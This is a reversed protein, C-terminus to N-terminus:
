KGTIKLIVHTLLWMLLQSLPKMAAGPAPATTRRRGAWIISTSLNLFAIFFHDNQM